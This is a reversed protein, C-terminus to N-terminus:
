LLRASGQPTRRDRAVGHMTKEWRSPERLLQFAAQWAAFSMFAWYLPLFPILWALHLAGAARLGRLGAIAAAALVVFLNGYFAASIWGWLGNPWDGRALASSTLVIPVLSIPYLLLGLVGATLIGHVALRQRLPLRLKPPMGSRLCLGVTQM